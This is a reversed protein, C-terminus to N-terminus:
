DPIVLLTLPRSPTGSSRQLKEDVTVSALAADGSAGCEFAIDDASAVLEIRYSGLQRVGTICLTNDNSNMSSKAAAGRAEVHAPITVSIIATAQSTSGLDGARAAAPRTILTLFALALTAWTRHTM